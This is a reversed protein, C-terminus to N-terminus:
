EWSFNSVSLVYFCIVCLRIRSGAKHLLGLAFQQIEFRRRGPLIATLEPWRQPLIVGHNKTAQSNKSKRQRQSKQPQARARALARGPGLGVGEVGRRAFHQRAERGVDRQLRRRRRGRGVSRFDLRRRRRRHRRRRGWGDGMGRADVDHLRAVGEVVDGPVM